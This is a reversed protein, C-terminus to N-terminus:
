FGMDWFSFFFIQTVFLLFNCIKSVVMSIEDIVRDMGLGGGERGREEDWDEKRVLLSVQALKNFLFLAM